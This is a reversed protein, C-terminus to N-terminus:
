EVANLGNALQQRCLYFVPFFDYIGAPGDGTDLNLILGPEPPSAGQQVAASLKHAYIKQLSVYIQQGIVLHIAKVPM